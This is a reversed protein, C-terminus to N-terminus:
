NAVPQGCETCFAVGPTLPSGCSTCFAPREPVPTEAESAPAGIRAGCSTCFASGPFLSEGCVPCVDAATPTDEAEPEVIRAETESIEEPEDPIYEMVPEPDAYVSVPAPSEAPQGCKTCFKAGEALPEGCRKCRPEDSAEDAMLTGCESCFRINRPLESGCAPCIRLGKAELIKQRLAVVTEYSTRISTYHAEYEPAYDTPHGEYYAKGIQLYADNIKQQEADIQTMFQDIIQQSEQPILDSM